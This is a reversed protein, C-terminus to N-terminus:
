KRQEYAMFIAGDVVQFARFALNNPKLLRDNIYDGIGQKLGEETFFLSMLLNTRASKVVLNGSRDVRVDCALHLQAGYVKLDLIIQDQDLSLRGDSAGPIEAWVKQLDATLGKELLVETYLDGTYSRTEIIDGVRAEIQQFLFRQLAPRVLTVHLVPLGVLLILIIALCGAGCCRWNFRRPKVPAAAAPPQAGAVLPAGCSLCFRAGDPNENNCSPCTQAM